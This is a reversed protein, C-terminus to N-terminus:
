SGYHSYSDELQIRVLQLCFTGSLLHLPNHLDTFLYYYGDIERDLCKIIKTQGSLIHYKHYFKIHAVHIM